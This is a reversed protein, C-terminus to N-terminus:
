NNLKHINHNKEQFDYTSVNVRFFLQFLFLNFSLKVIKKISSQLNSVYRHQERIVIDRYLDSNSIWWDTKSVFRVKIGMFM